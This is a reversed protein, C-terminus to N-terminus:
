HYHLMFHAFFVHAFRINRYQVPALDQTLILYFLLVLLLLLLFLLLLIIHAVYRELVSSTEKFNVLM